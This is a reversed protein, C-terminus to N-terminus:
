PQGRDTLQLGDLFARPTVFRTHFTSWDGSHRQYVPDQELSPAGGSEARM